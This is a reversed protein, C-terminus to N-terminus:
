ASLSIIYWDENAGLRRAFESEQLLSHLAEEGTPLM